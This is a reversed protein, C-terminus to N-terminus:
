KSIRKQCSNPSLTLNVRSPEILWSRLTQNRRTMPFDLRNSRFSTGFLATRWYEMESPERVPKRQSLWSRAFAIASYKGQALAFM